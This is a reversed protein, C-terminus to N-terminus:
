AWWQLVFFMCPHRTNTLLEPSPAPDNKYPNDFVTSVRIQEAEEPSLEGIKYPQMHGLIHCRNHQTYVRWFAELDNGAAMM